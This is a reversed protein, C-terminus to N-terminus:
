TDRRDRVHAVEEWVQEYANTIRGIPWNTRIRSRALRGLARREELPRHLEEIVANALASPDAIPVVRGTSGVIRASDGDDTVVCPVECAMAEGIANSFGEGYCSSSVAIDLANTVRPIDARPGLLIVVDHLGSAEIWQCLDLNDRTIGKGALIFRSRPLAAHVQAAARIFSRHDKQADFRAILGVALDDPRLGFERRAADRDAPNRCFREVDFGNPIVEIRARDYGARAHTEALAYSCCLIREPLWRSLRASAWATTRTHRKSKTGDLSQRINWIVPPNGAGKAALGGMLDAHYMWTQIVHPRTARLSRTLQFLKTPDPVGPRMGLAHVPVGLREVQPGLPGLTTLSVVDPDFKARDINTLLKVLM